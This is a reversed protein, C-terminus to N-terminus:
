YGFKRQLIHEHKINKVKHLLEHHPGQHEAGEHKPYLVQEKSEFLKERVAEKIFDQITAFGHEDAYSQATELLKEPLRINIQKNM